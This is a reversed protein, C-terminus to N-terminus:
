YHRTRKARKGIIVCGKILYTFSAFLLTKLIVDILLVESNHVRQSIPTYAMFGQSASYWKLNNYISNIIAKFIKAM